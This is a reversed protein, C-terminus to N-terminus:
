FNENPEAKTDGNVAVQITQSTDGANFHVTGTKAVYDGDATPAPGDRPPFIVDFAANGGPRPWPFNELQSGNNGEVIQADGIAVSGAAAPPPAPEPTTKLDGFNVTGDAFRVHEINKITDTGDMDGARQDSIIATGGNVSIKYDSQKGDFVAT